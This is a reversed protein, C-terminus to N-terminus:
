KAQEAMREIVVLTLDDAQHLSGFQMDVRRGILQVMDSPSELPALAEFEELYRKSPLRSRRSGTPDGPFAQEFGDSYILLRDGAHLTLDTEPYAEGDFVGLLGGGTDLLESGGAHRLLVPAPHGASAMRVHGTRGNIVCYVATAFRTTRGQHSILDANIRALAEAPPVIRYTKDGTEKAPLARCIVMTLLAAPVGHGVADAVFVGVHEEDLRMVDYIDGSVYSAPRWFADMRVSGVQPFSRPLFERQVHAALQLEEQMRAIEGRLGSTFRTAVGLERNLRDVESQRSLMGRIGAAVTEASADLKDVAVEEAAARRRGSDDILMMVPVRASEAADLVGTLGTPTDRGGLLLVIVPNTTPLPRAAAQALDVVVSTTEGGVLGPLENALERARDMQSPTAALVVVATQIRARRTPVATM